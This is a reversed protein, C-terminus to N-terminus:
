RRWVLVGSATSVGFGAIKEVASAALRRGSNDPVYLIDNPELPV